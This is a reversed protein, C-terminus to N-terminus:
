LTMMTSFGCGMPIIVTREGTCNGPGTVREECWRHRKWFMSLMVGPSPCVTGGLVGLGPEVVGHSAWVCFGSLLFEFCGNCFGLCEMHFRYAQSGIRSWEM